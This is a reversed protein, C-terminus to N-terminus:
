PHVPSECAAGAPPGPSRRDFSFCVHHRLEVVDQGCDTQGRQEGGGQQQARQVAAAGGGGDALGGLLPLDLRQPRGAGRQFLGRVRVRQGADPVVAVELERQVPLDGAAQAGRLRGAAPGAPPQRQQQQLDLAELLDPALM